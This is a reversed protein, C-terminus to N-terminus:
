GTPIGLEQAMIDINFKEKRLRLDYYLLTPGLTMLLIGPIPAVGVIILSVLPNASDGAVEALIGMPLLVTAQGLLAFVLLIGFVRWWDGKVLESSRSLAGIPERNELVLAQLALSWRVAFYIGLPIGICTILLLFVAGLYLAATAVLNVARKLAFRYARTVSIPQRRHQECTGYVLAGLMPAGLVSAAYLMGMEQLTTLNGDILYVLVALLLSFVAVIIVFRVLNRGLIRLSEM